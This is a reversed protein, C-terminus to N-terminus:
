PWHRRGFLGPGRHERTEQLGSGDFSQWSLAFRGWRALRRIAGDLINNGLPPPRAMQAGPGPLGLAADVRPHPQNAASPRATATTTVTHSTSTPFTSSASCAPPRRAAPFVRLRARVDPEVPERRLDEGGDLGAYEWGRDAPVALVAPDPAPQGKQKLWGPTHFLQPREDLPQAMAEFFMGRTGVHETHLTLRLACSSRPSGRQGAARQRAGGGGCARLIRRRRAPIAIISAASWPRRSSGAKSSAGVL